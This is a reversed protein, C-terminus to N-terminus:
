DRLWPRKRSPQNQGELALPRTTASTSILGGVKLGMHGRDKENEACFYEPIDSDPVLLHTVKITFPRPYMKPDDITMEVDLHGFDRRRYRETLHMVESRPHGIADLWAKDNFGVTDVVM